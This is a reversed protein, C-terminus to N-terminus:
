IGDHEGIYGRIADYELRADEERKERMLAEAMERDAKESMGLVTIGLHLDLLAVDGPTLLGARHYLSMLEGAEQVDGSLICDYVATIALSRASDNAPAKQDTM